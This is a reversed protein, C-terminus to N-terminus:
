VPAGAKRLAARARAPITHPRERLQQSSVRVVRWGLDALLEYREIDRTRQDEDLWHHDGDYEVVVRWRRWGMDCRAVIRGDADRVKVQTRPRPLRGDVIALRTRTEPPSEAGGDVLTLVERLQVIGRTGPHRAAVVGIDRPTIRTANCLADLTEVARVFKLRRGLDYGTRAPTSALWDGAICIEDPELADGHIVLGSAGRRSGTRFLEARTGPDIWKTGHVAAASFGALIGDEGAWLVAAEARITADLGIGKAIYVDRHLRTFDLRLQRETLLGDAVADTGLFPSGFDGM